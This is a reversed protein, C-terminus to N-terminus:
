DTTSVMLYIDGEILTSFFTVGVIDDLSGVIFRFYLYEGEYIFDRSLTGELLTNTYLRKNLTITYDSTKNITELAVIHFSCYYKFNNASVNLKSCKQADYQFSM